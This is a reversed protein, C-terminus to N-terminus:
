GGLIIVVAGFVIALFVAAVAAALNQEIEDMVNFEERRGDQHDIRIRM